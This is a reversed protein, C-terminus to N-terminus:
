SAPHKRVRGKRPTGSLIDRGTTEAEALERKELKEDKWERMFQIAQRESILEVQPGLTEAIELADKVALTDVAGTLGSRQAQVPGHMGAVAEIAVDTLVDIGFRTRWDNMCTMCAFTHDGLKQCVINSEWKFRKCIPCRHMHSEKPIRSDHSILNLAHAM